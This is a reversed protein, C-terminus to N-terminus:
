RKKSKIKSSTRRGTEFKGDDIWKKAYALGAALAEEKTSYKPKSITFRKIPSDRELWLVRYQAKWGDPNRLASVMIQHGKYVEDMLTERRLDSKQGPWDNSARIM